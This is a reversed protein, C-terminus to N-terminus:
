PNALGPLPLRELIMNVFTLADIICFILLHLWYLLGEPEPVFSPKREQQFLIKLLSKLLCTNFCFRISQIEDVWITVNTKYDDMIKHTIEAPEIRYAMSQLVGRMHSIDCCPFFANGPIKFVIYKEFCIRHKKLFFSPPVKWFYLWSSNAYIVKNSGPFCVLTPRSHPYTKVGRTTSPNIACSGIKSRSIKTSCFLCLLLITLTSVSCGIIFRVCALTPSVQLSFWVHEWNDLFCTTGMQTMRVKRHRM